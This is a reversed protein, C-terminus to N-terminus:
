FDGTGIGFNGRREDIAEDVVSIRVRISGIVHHRGQGPADKRLGLHVRDKPAQDCDVPVTEHAPSDGLGPIALVEQDV